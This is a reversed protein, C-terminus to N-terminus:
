QNEGASARERDPRPFAMGDPAIVFIPPNGLEKSDWWAHAGDRYPDDYYRSGDSTMCPTASSSRLCPEVMPVVLEKLNPLREGDPGEQEARIDNQGLPLVLEYHCEWGYGPEDSPTWRLQLRPAPLDDKHTM